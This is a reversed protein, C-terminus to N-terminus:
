GYLKMVDSRKIKSTSTMPMKDTVITVKTIRKYHQIDRNVQEVLDNMHRAIAAEDNKMSERYEDTPRILIRIGEKRLAEDAMYGM